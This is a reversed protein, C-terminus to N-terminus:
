KCKVWWSDGPRIMPDLGFKRFWKDQLALIADPRQEPDKQLVLKLFEAAELSFSKFEPLDFDINEDRIRDILARSTGSDAFDEGSRLFPHRGLLLMYTCLGLAFIDAKNNIYNELHGEPSRFKYGAGGKVKRGPEQFRVVWGFDILKARTGNRGAHIINSPKLDRHLVGLSHIIALAVLIDRIWTAVQEERESGKVPSNVYHAIDGGELYEFILCQSGQVGITGKIYDYASDSLKERFLNQFLVEKDLANKGANTPKRKKIAVKEGSVKGNIIEECILVDFQCGSGVEGIKRYVIGESRGILEKSNGEELIPTSLPLQHVDETNNSDGQGLCATKDILLM